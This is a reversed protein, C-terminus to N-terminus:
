KGAGSTTGVYGPRATVKMQGPRVRVDLRHFGGLAVGKPSFTLVYRSRFDQLIKQFEAAIRASSDIEITRGGTADALDTLAPWHRANGTEVVYVVANSRKAIQLVEDPQLWSATDRGDTYILVLSRGVEAQTAMLAVYVGDLISTEGSPVVANLAAQVIALDATLAVRPAVAHSFTTLGARDVPRLDTLLLASARRLDDLRPGAISASVDFALVANVPMDSSELADITQLVGNDRVEFDSATLGAVPQGNGMKTVSVDLRVGVASSSFAPRQSLRSAREPTSGFVVASVMVVITAAATDSRPRRM